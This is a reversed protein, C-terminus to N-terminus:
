ASARRAPISPRERIDLRSNAFASSRSLPRRVARARAPCHLANRPSPCVVHCDLCWSTTAAATSRCIDALERGAASRDAFPERM